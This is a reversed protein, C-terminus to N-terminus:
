LTAIIFALLQEYRVGLRNKEVAIDRLDEPVEELSPYAIGGEETEYWIDEMFMAYRHADLGESTFADQLDQAIIGFHIRAKEGKLEIAETRRYKRLLTKCKTAVRLEADNLQEIDQKENRDSSTTTGSAFYGLKWRAFAGGFNCTNDVYGGTSANASTIQRTGFGDFFTFAAQNTGIIMRSPASSSGIVGIRAAEALGSSSYKAKFSLLQDYVFAGSADSNLTLMRNAETEGNLSLQGSAVIDGLMNTTSATTGSEGINITTYGGNAFGRGINVTKTDLSSTNVGTAINTTVTGSTSIDVNPATITGSASVNGKLNITTEGTGSTTGNGINFINTGNSSQSGMNITTSHGGYFGYGYGTGINVVKVDTTNVNNIGTAINTTVSGATSIDVNPATITGTTTLTGDLTQGGFNGLYNSENVLIEQSEALVNISTTNGSVAVSTESPQITLTATNDSVSVSTVNETVTVTTDSTVDVTTVDETVTVGM